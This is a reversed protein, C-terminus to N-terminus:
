RERPFASGDREDGAAVVPEDLQSAPDLCVAALRKGISTSTESWPLTSAITPWTVPVRPPSWMRTLLAPTISSPGTSPASMLSHCRITSTLMSPRRYQVRSAIGAIRSEPPPWM